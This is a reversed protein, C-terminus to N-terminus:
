LLKPQCAELTVLDFGHLAQFVHQGVHMTHEGCAGMLMQAGKKQEYLILLAKPNNLDRIPLVNVM